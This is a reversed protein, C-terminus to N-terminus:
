ACAHRELPNMHWSGLGATICGYINRYDMEDTLLLRAKATKRGKERRRVCM